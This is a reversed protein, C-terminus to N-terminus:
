ILGLMFVDGYCLVDGLLPLARLVVQPKWRM